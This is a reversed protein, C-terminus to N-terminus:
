NDYWKLFILRAYGPIPVFLKERQIGDVIRDAVESSKLTPLFRSVVDNFMGTSQIFYPCIVTTKVGKVGLFRTIIQVM